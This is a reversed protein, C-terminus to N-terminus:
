LGNRWGNHAVKDEDPETNGEMVLIGDKNEGVVLTGVITCGVILVGGGGNNEEVLPM